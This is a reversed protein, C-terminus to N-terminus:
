IKHCIIISHYKTSPFTTHLPSPAAAVTSARQCSSFRRGGAHLEPAASKGVPTLHGLDQYSLQIWTEELTIATYQGVWVNISFPNCISNTARLQMAM